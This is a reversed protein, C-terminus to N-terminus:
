STDNSETSQNYFINCVSHKFNRTSGCILVLQFLFFYRIHGLTADINCYKMIKQFCNAGNRKIKDM